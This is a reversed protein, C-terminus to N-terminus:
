LESENTDKHVLRSSTSSASETIAERQETTIDKMGDDEKKESM